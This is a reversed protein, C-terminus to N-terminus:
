ADHVSLFTRVDGPALTTPTINTNGFRSAEPCFQAAAFPTAAAALIAAFATTKFQMTVSTSYLFCVVFTPQNKQSPRLTRIYEEHV